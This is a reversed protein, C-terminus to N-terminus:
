KVLKKFFIRMIMRKEIDMKELMDPFNLNEKIQTIIRNMQALKFVLNDQIQFNDPKHPRDATNGVESAITIYFRAKMEKIM